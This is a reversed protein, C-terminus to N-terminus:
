YKPFNTQLIESEDVAQVARQLVEENQVLAMRVHGEGSPGFASGPTVIVGAKEVMNLAFDISTQYASPIMAWVFMTAPPKEM